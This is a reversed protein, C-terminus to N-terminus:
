FDHICYQCFHISSARVTLVRWVRQPQWLWSQGASLQWFVHRYRRVLERKTRYTHFCEGCIRYGVPSEDVHHWHCHFLECAQTPEHQAPNLSM